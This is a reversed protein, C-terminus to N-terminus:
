SAPDVPGYLPHGGGWGAVAMIALGAWSQFPRVMPAPTVSQTNRASLQM